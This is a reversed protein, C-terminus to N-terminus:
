LTKRKRGADPARNSTRFRSRAEIRSLELYYPKLEAPQERYNHQNLHLLERRTVIILNDSAFNRNDGDRFIVAHGKPLPGHEVEWLWLHKHKWRTPAGTWPNPEPVSIEIYGDASVRESWLPRKTWPVNGKRFSTANAGMYGKKGLNWPASGKEFCGTRGSRIWHNKLYARIQSVTKVSTFERNFAETLEIQTLQSYNDRLWQDQERTILTSGWTKKGPKRGCTIQHNKLTSKIETATKDTGFRLNFARTIEPVLKTQYGIQLFELQEATYIFRPM